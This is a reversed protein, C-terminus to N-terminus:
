YPSGRIYFQAGGIEGMKVDYDGILFESRPCCM